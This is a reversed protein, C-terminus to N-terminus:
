VRPDFVRLFMPLFKYWTVVQHKGTCMIGGTIALYGLNSSDPETAQRKRISNTTAGSDRGKTTAKSEKVPKPHIKIIEKVAWVM